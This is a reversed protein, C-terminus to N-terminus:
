KNRNNIEEKKKGDKKIFYVMLASNNHKKPCKEHMFKSTNKTVCQIIFKVIEWELGVTLDFVISDNFHFVTEL